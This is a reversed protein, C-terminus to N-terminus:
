RWSLIQWKSSPPRQGRCAGCWALSGGYPNLGVLYMAHYPGIAMDLDGELNQPKTKLTNEEVDERPPLAYPFKSVLLPSVNFNTEV